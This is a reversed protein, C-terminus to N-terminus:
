YAASSKITQDLCFRLNKLAHDTNHEQAHSMGSSARRPSLRLNEREHRSRRCDVKFLTSLRQRRYQLVRPKADGNHIACVLGAVPLAVQLSDGTQEVNGLGLLVGAAIIIGTQLQLARRIKKFM